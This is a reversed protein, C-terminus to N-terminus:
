EDEPLILGRNNIETLFEQYDDSGFGIRTQGNVILLGEASKIPHDEETLNDEILQTQGELYVCAWFLRGDNFALRQITTGQTTDRNEPEIIMKKFEQIV